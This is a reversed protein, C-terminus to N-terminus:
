EWTDKDQELSNTIWVDKPLEISFTGTDIEPNVTINSLRTVTKDGKPTTMEFGLPLGTEEKYYVIISSLYRGAIKSLPILKIVIEGEKRSINVSFSKEMESLSGSLATTFFRLTNRAILNGSLTYVQAEKAEPHYVTMEKGDIVTISKAPKVIDWRLMNPKKMTVIGDIYIKEGLLSLQKEQHVAATISHYGKTLGMFKEFIKQREPPSVEEATNNVAGVTSPLVLGIFLVAIIRRLRFLKNTIKNSQGMTTIPQYSM